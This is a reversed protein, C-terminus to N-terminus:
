HIQYSIPIILQAEAPPKPFPSANKVAEVANNDLSGVGSSEVIKIAKAHGDASIFFSITVKGQRGMQRATKPYTIHKNILDKIYSFNAKLYKMGGTDAFNASGRVPATNMSGTAAPTSSVRIISKDTSGPEGTISTATTEGHVSVPMQIEVTPSERSDITMSQLARPTIEAHPEAVKVDMKTEIEKQRTNPERTQTKVAANNGANVAGATDELTFDIVLIKESSIFRDGMFILLLVVVLAHLAFSIQFSRQLYNV